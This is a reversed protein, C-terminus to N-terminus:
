SPAARMAINRLFLQDELRWMAQTVGSRPRDSAAALTSKQSLELPKTGANRVLFVQQLEEGAFVEGFDRKTMDMVVEPADPRSSSAARAPLSLALPLLLVLSAAALPGSRDRTWPIPIYRRTQKM